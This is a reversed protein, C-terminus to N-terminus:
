ASKLRPRGGESEKKLSELKQEFESMHLSANIEYGILLSLSLLFLWVMLAIMVGISGYLKNYTGFNAIYFTFIYSVGLGLLTAVFSGISLFNWKYHVAPGFYYIFSIAILFVLFLVVFRLILVTNINVPLEEFPIALNNIFNLIIQGVVLLVISLMLVSALMLTLGTATLRMQLWSRNEKTQYIANFANMLSMIGNSALFLAFVFGFTLLGGRSNGIIDEITHDIVNFMNEPIWESLFAMISATDVAPIVQHIYPM